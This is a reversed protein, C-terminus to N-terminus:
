PPDFHVGRGDHVGRADNDSGVVGPLRDKRPAGITEGPDHAYGRIWRFDEGSLYGEDRTDSTPMGTENAALCCGPFMFFDAYKMLEFKCIEYTGASFFMNVIRYKKNCLWRKTM